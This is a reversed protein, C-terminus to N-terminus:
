GCSWGEDEEKLEKGVEVEGEGIKAVRVVPCTMRYSDAIALAKGNAVCVTWRQALPYQRLWLVRVIDTAGSDLLARILKGGVVM